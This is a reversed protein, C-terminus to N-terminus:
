EETSIIKGNENVQLNYSIKGKTIQIKYVKSSKDQSYFADTIIYGAITAVSQKVKIPLNNIDIKKLTNDDVEISSKNNTVQQGYTNKIGFFVIGILVIYTKLNNM